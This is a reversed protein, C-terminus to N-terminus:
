VARRAAQAAPTKQSRRSRTSRTAVVPTPFVDPLGRNDRVATILDGDIARLGQAMAALLGNDALIVASRPIGQSYEGIRDLAEETFPFDTGGAAQWRFRLMEKIEDPTLVTLTPSYPARNYFNRFRPHQLKKRFEEQGFLVVQLYKRGGEYNMLGRIFEILPAKLEQAEDMIIVMTKGEELVKQSVFRKFIGHLVNYSRHTEPVGFKAVIERLLANPTTFHPDPFFVYEVNPDDECRAALMRALSSKGTGVDGFVLTLGRKNAVAWRVTQFATSHIESMWLYRPDSSTLYPEDSLGYYTLYSDDM